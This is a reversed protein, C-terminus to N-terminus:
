REDAAKHEARQRLITERRSYDRMRQPYGVVMADYIPLAHAEAFDRAANTSHIRRRTFEGDHAVLLVSVETVATKPEVYVEVGRRAAVWEALADADARRESRRPTAAKARRSFWGM